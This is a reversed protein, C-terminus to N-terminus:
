FIPSAEPLCLGPCIIRADAAIPRMYLEETIISKFYNIQDPSEMKLDDDVMLLIHQLDAGTFSSKEVRSISYLNM